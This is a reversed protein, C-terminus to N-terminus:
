NGALARGLRADWGYVDAHFRPSGDAGVTVTRYLVLLPM